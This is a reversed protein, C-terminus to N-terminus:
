YQHAGHAGIVFIWRLWFQNFDPLVNVTTYKGEFEIKQFETALWGLSLSFAQEVISRDYPKQAYDYRGTLFTRKGVQSEVFSYMGFSNSSKSASYKANSYLLETQWTLSKYTNLQVPKWKYTLDVGAMNTVNSSDNPGTVGSLGFELTANDSLTFFNKLHGLYVFRNNDGRFFTPSAQAGSTAQFVLEQYFGKTPTLWSVSFGEDNLGEDEGFYNVIANPLDIFPLAHPHTPNIKGFAERFKGVKLQLKAPLALTTLYGEEVSAGYQHTIPDRGFSVFFDARIYPDVVSQFSMETEDLYADFNRKGSSLYSSRFDAVVGIDPNASIGSRTTQPAPQAPQMPQNASQLLQQEIKKQLISDAIATSDIKKQAIIENSFLVATFLLIVPIIKKYIFILNM